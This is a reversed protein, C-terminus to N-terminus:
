HQAVDATASGSNCASAVSTMSLVAAVVFCAAFILDRVRTSRQRSAINELRNTTTTMMAFAYLVKPAV